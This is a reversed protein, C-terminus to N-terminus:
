NCSIASWGAEGIIPFPVGDQDELYNGQASIRLPWNVAQASSLTSLLVSLSLALVTVLRRSKKAIMIHNWATMDSAKYWSM